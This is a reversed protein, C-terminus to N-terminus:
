SRRSRRAPHLGSETAIADLPVDWAQSAIREVRQLEFAVGILRPKRWHERRRLFALTRDYYGAGMGLRYGMADFAVLPMLILDLQRADVRERPAAIPEPIGFRNAQLPDGPSYPAFWLRRPRQADLVPLYCAKGHLALREILPTLDVEGDNPLYCAVREIRRLTVRAFLSHGIRHSRARHEAAALARRRARM